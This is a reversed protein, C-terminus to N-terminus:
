SAIGAPPSGTIEADRLERLERAVAMDIAYDGRKAARCLSIVVLAVAVWVGGAVSAVIELQM